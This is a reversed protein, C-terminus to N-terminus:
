ADPFVRNADMGIPPLFRSNKFPIVVHTDSGRDPWEYLNIEFLPEKRWIDIDKLDKSLNLNLCEDIFAANASNSVQLFSLNVSNFLMLWREMYLQSKRIMLNHLEERKFDMFLRMQRLIVLVQKYVAAASTSPNTGSAVSSRASKSLRAAITMPNELLQAESVGEHEAFKTVFNVGDDSIERLQTEFKEVKKVTISGDAFKKLRCAIKEYVKRVNEFGRVLSYWMWVKSNYEEVVLCYMVSKTDIGTCSELMKDQHLEKHYWDKLAVSIVGLLRNLREWDYSGLSFFFDVMVPSIRYSYIGETTTVLHLQNRLLLEPSKSQM